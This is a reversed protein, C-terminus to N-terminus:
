SLCAKIFRVSDFRPNDLALANAMQKVVYESAGSEHLAKAILEYSKRTLM